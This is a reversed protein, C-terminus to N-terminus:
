TSHTTTFDVFLRTNYTNIVNLGVCCGFVRTASSFFLARETRCWISCSRGDVRARGSAGISKNLSWIIRTCTTTTTPSPPRPRPSPPTSSLVFPAKLPRVGNSCADREGCAFSMAFMIKQTKIRARARTRQQKM